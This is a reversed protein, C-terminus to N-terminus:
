QHNQVKLEMMMEIADNRIFQEELESWEILEMIANKENGDFNFSNSREVPELDVNAPMLKMTVSLECSWDTSTREIDCFLEMQFFVREDDFWKSFETHWPLGYFIIKTSKSAVFDDGMGNLTFKILKETVKENEYTDGITKMILSNYDAYELRGVKLEIEFLITDDRVYGNNFLKRWKIFSDFGRGKNESDFIGVAFRRKSDGKDKFSVLKVKAQAACMCHKRDNPINCWLWVGLTSGKDETGNEEENAVNKEIKLKWKLGHVVFANSFVHTLQSVNKVKMNFTIKDELAVQAM